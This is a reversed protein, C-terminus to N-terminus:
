YMIIFITTFIIFVKLMNEIESQSLEADSAAEQEAQIASRAVSTDDDDSEQKEMAITIESPLLPQMSPSISPQAIPLQISPQQSPQTQNRHEKIKKKKRKKKFIEVNSNEEESSDDDDRPPHASKRKHTKTKEQSKSKRLLLQLTAMLIAEKDNPYKTM